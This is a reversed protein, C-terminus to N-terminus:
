KENKIGGYRIYNRKFEAMFLEHGYKEEFIEQAQKQIKARLEEDFEWIGHCIRCIPIVMGWQMSKKRNCGPFIEHLDDKRNRDCIYCVDLNDTLMSFRKSELKRQKKSQKKIEKIEKYKKNKCNICDKHTIKIKREICYFYKEYKKSRIKFNICNM